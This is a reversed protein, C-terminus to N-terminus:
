KSKSEKGLQEQRKLKQAKLDAIANKLRDIEEKKENTHKAREM